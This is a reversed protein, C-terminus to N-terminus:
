SSRSLSQPELYPDAQLLTGEGCGGGAKNGYVLLIEMGGEGVRPGGPSGESGVGVWGRQLAEKRLTERRM